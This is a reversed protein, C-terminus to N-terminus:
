AQLEPRDQRHPLVTDPAWTCKPLAADYEARTLPTMAAADYPHVGAKTDAIYIDTTGTPTPDFQV